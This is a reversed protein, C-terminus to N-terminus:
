MNHEIGISQSCRHDQHCGYIYSEVVFLSQFAIRFTDIYTTTYELITKRDVAARKNTDTAVQASGATGAGLELLPAPITM